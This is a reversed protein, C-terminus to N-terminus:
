PRWFPKRTEALVDEVQLGVDRLLYDPMARLQRRLKGRAQWAALTRATARFPRALAPSPASERLPVTCLTSM